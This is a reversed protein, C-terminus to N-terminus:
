EVILGHEEAVKRIRTEEAERALACIELLEHGYFGGYDHSNGFFLLRREIRLISQLKNSNM